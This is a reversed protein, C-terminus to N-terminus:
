RKYAFGVPSLNVVPLNVLNNASTSDGITRLYVGGLLGKSVYTIETGKNDFYKVGRKLNKVVSRKSVVKGSVLQYLTHEKNTATIIQKNEM